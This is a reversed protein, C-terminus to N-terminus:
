RRKEQQWCHWWSCQVVFSSTSPANALFALRVKYQLQQLKLQITSQYYTDGKTRQETNM